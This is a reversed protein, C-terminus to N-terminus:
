PSGGTLGTVRAELTELQGSLATLRKNTELRGADVANLSDLIDQVQTSNKAQANGIQGQEAMLNEQTLTLTLLQEDYNSQNMSEVARTAADMKESVSVLSKDIKAIELKETELKEALASLLKEDSDQSSKLATISSEIGSVVKTQAALGEKNEDIWVRNRKNTVDWLKRIESMHTDSETKIAKFQANIATGNLAVSEDTQTLAQELYVIREDALALREEYSNQLQEMSYQQLALYGIAIGAVILLTVM